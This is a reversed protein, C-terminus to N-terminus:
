PASCLGLGAPLCADDFDPSSVPWPACTTGPLAGACVDPGELDCVPACCTDGACGPVLAAAVCATGEACTGPSTCPEGAPSPRGGPGCAFRPLDAAIQCVQGAPCAPARPDCPFLCVGAVAGNKFCTSCADACTPETPTGACLEHCRRGQEDDGLFGHCVAGRECADTIAWEAEECAGGVPTPPEAVPVCSAGAWPGFNQAFPKCKQGEPCTDQWPDCAVGPAPLDPQQAFNLSGGTTSVEGASETVATSATAGSTSTTAGMSTTSTASESALTTAGPSSPGCGFVFVGLLVLRGRM